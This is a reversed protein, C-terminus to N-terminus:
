IRLRPRREWDVVNALPRGDLYACLNNCFIKIGGHCDEDSAGSVHPTILVNPHRWPEPPQHEFEGVYADPAVLPAPDLSYLRRAGDVRARVLGAECLSKLHRSVSPQPLALTEVLAGAPRQGRWLLALIECRVPDALAKFITM